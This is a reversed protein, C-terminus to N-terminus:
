AMCRGIRRWNDQAAENATAPLLSGSELAFIPLSSTLLLISLSAQCVDDREGGGEGGRASELLTQKVPQQHHSRDFCSISRSDPRGRGGGGVPAVARGISYFAFRFSPSLHRFNFKGINTVM